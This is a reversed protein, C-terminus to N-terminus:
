LLVKKLEESLIEYGSENLHLGDYSYQPNMGQNYFKDYVDVYIINTEAVKEKIEQNLLKIKENVYEDDTCYSRPLISYLYITKADINQIARVYRESYAKVDTMNRVDNTGIEVIVTQNVYSHALKEIYGIGEGSVGDNFVMYSPFFRTVDWRAVISDGIFYLKDGENKSCSTIFLSLCLLVWSFYKM